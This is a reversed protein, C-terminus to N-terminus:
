DVVEGCNTCIRVMRGEDNRKVRYRTTQDCSRCVVLVNSLHLSAEREIIGTQRAKGTPKQHKKVLNLGSIFLRDKRPVVQNVTARLGKEDGTIIEVTDGKKVRAAM